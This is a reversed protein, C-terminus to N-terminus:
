INLDSGNKQLWGKKGLYNPMLRSLEKYFKDNHTHEKLHVIEHIIIYDIVGIPAMAIKWNFNLSGEKTCSGWRYGLEMIRFDPTKININQSIYELRENIKNKLHETYWSKFMEKAKSQYKKGLLFWGNKLKLSTDEDVIQLRYSRGLYFFSEGSVFKKAVKDEQHSKKIALKGWIWLRKKNVHKEIEDIQLDYPANVIVGGDREVTIGISSRNSRVLDYDILM